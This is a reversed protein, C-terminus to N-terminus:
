KRNHKDNLCKWCLGDKDLTVETHIGCQNM